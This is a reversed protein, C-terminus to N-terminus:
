LGEMSVFRGGAKWSEPSDSVKACDHVDLIVQISGKKPVPDAHAVPRAPCSPVLPTTGCFVAPFGCLYESESKFSLHSLTQGAKEPQRSEICEDPAAPTLTLTVDFDHKEGAGGDFHRDRQGM